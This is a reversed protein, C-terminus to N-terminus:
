RGLLNRAQSAIQALMAPTVPAAAQARAVLARFQRVAEAFQEGWRAVHEAPVGGKARRLFELRVQQFDRALGAVLLREWPDSPSMRTATMQAWDLGLLAGLDTFARTLAIPDTKSDRALRALGVAGDMDFLKAVSAAAGDPAGGVRLEELMRASHARGEANLLKGTQGALREVGPALEAVLQSPRAQARGTRLLDAVQTRLAAAARDFLLLRAAEPMAASELEAWIAAMGFLREAAVFASAVQALTAGEEEVLEFPHIAGLRNVLRNAIRTAIIERALRHGLIDVRFKKRMAPPCADLLEDALGPDAPLASDEIAAQLVLKASSLLVALEPRTLGAGEAARRTFGESDALGETKRDLSGRDEM